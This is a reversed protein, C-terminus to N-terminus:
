SRAGRSQMNELVTRSTDLTEHEQAYYGLKLGHGPMSRAPTPSTSAPRPDAAAHDQRRRQPRPHGGPSGKDIALDVDTFVELSGYSKSLEAATLPTKGCPAPEPFKIRAM